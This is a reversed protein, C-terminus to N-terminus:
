PVTFYLPVGAADGGFPGRAGSRSVARVLWHIRVGSPLGSLDDVYRPDQIVESTALVRQEGDRRVVEYGLLDPYAPPVPDWALAAAGGSASALRLGSVKPVFAPNPRAQAAPLVVAGGAPVAAAVTDPLFCGSPPAQIVVRWSGAPVGSLSWSGDYDTATFLPTGALSVDINEDQKASHSCWLQQRSATGALRGPAALRLTDEPGPTPGETRPLLGVRAALLAGDRSRAIATYPGAPLGAFRALGDAATSLSDVARVRRPLSDEPGPGAPIAYLRVVAEAPDPGLLVRV